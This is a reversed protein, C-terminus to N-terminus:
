IEGNWEKLFQELFRKIFEYREEALQKGKSTHFSEPSLKLIKEYFVNIATKPKSNLAKNPKIKPDHIIGKFRGEYYFVRAVAIAGLADLRDADQLIKEKLSFAQIFLEFCKFIVYEIPFKDFVEKNIHRIKIDIYEHRIRTKTM